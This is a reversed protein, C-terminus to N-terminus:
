SRKKTLYLAGALAGVGATVFFPMLHFINESPDGSLFEVIMEGAYVAPPDTSGEMGHVSYGGLRLNNLM